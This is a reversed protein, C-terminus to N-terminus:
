MEIFALSKVHVIFFIHPITQPFIPVFPFNIMTLCLEVKHFFMEVNDNLGASVITALYALM